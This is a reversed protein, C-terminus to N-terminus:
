PHTHAKDGQYFHAAFHILYGTWSMRQMLLGSYIVISGSPSESTLQRWSFNKHPALHSQWIGIESPKERCRGGHFEAAELAHWEGGRQM